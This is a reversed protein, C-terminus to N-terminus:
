ELVAKIRRVGASSAEEKTIKFRGLEGTNAVHPGGCLEVSFNGIKYVKVIDGYKGEDFSSKTAKLAEEKPLEIMEVPIKEQIKENVLDEIKKIQEDTIKQPYNFDFRLREATINSGKQIIDGDLIERLAALLLHTATHYKTTMEGADALGGKFMGVSATRSLQQHAKLQENFNEIDIKIGKEKALEQTLEFPFGFTTFLIFPETGKEFEKLGKELTEKFKKEEKELENMIRSENNKVEPYHEKYIEVVVEAIEKTFDKEIGLLKGHRVARRILRRLVYGKGTNSTMVGDAIIFVSAKIHDAIIRYSKASLQYSNASLKEIKNIIPAFLDTEYVSNVGQIVMAIRELGMGTDVNGGAVSHTANRAPKQKLPEFSGDATKNYQMFVDNWVEMNDIFMETCPGCPGTAGAPGWWNDEKGKYFIKEKPVGLSQWIQASEEDRPANSDGEFVTVSLKNKDIGLWKKDTLFEWSWEIAEKKFYDGFSWNGLMEFFTLHSEDGVEDIDGTRICKQSNAVRKGGPHEEGLLYPVLPHMGATTFLVTPDTESPILSASPIVAHGKEEFFKLFKERIEHSTM